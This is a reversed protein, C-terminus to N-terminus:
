NSLNYIEVLAIGTASGKSSVVATYSGPTVSGYVAAELPNQPALGTAAIQGAQPSTQWDDNSAIAIGNRDYITLVPDALAGAVGANALSPGIGRILVTTSAGGRTIFGGILADDGPSVRGRTSINLMRTRTPVAIDVVTEAGLTGGITGVLTAAGTLQNITYLNRSNAVTLSAYFVGTASSIDFGVVDSTNVGLPGVTNLTGNNPPNQILLADTNSDIDYLVTVLAGAFSNTYASGVVNPNAGANPDGAAYTLVNDIIVTGNDPNMRYNGDNNSTIRIRDVTPNFDFGFQTAGAPIMNRAGVATASGTAAEIVYLQGADSLAYLGGTAPRYDCAVLTEGATLGTVGIKAFPSGPTASDFMLLNNGSTTGGATLAVITEGRGTLFATAALILSLIFKKM